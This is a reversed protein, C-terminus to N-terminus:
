NWGVPEYGRDALCRNVFERHAASPQPSRFLGRLLGATAGGAAGAAAGRGAAGVVAGGAAGSAGGVAAGTATSGAAAAGAGGARTAGAAEALQRCAAIDRDAQAQGVAELHTNPYLVPRPQACGALAVAALLTVTAAARGRWANAKM